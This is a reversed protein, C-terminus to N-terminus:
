DDLFTILPQDDALLYHAIFEAPETDSLNDFRAVTVGAPEHFADGPRLERVAGGQLQYAFRGATICGVVGGEHFHAGSSVGPALRIRYTEVRNVSNHVPSTLLYDREIATM